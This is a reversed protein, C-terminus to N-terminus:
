LGSPYVSDPFWGGPRWRFGMREAENCMEQCVLGAHRHSFMSTLSNRWILSNIVGPGAKLPYYQNDPQSHRNDFHLIRTPSLPFSVTAEPDKFGKFTLSPHSVSVPNDSTIFVPEDALLIAWRMRMMIKALWTANGIQALWMRKLDDETANSFQPWDSLDVDYVKGGIEIAEPTGPCNQYFEVLQRHIRRQM